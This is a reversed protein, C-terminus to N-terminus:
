FKLFKLNQFYKRLLFEDGSSFFFKINLHDAWRFFVSHTEVVRLFSLDRVSFFYISFKKSVILNTTLDLINLEPLISISFLSLFTYIAEKVLTVEVILDYNKKKFTQFCGFRSIFPKKGTLVRLLFFAALVRNHTPQAM